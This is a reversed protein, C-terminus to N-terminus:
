ELVARPQGVRSKLGVLVAAAFAAFIVFDAISYLGLARSSSHLAVAIQRAILPGVFFGIYVITQYGGVARGHFQLPTQTLLRNLLLPVVMGQSAGTLVAGAVLAPLWPVQAIILTGVALPLMVVSMKLPYSYNPQMGYTLATAAAAIQNVSMLEGALGSSILGREQLVAGMEFLPPGVVATTILVLAFVFLWTMWPIAAGTDAIEAARVEARVEARPPPVFLLCLLLPLGALLPLFAFRWGMEGLIGSAPLIFIGVLAAGGAQVGLWRKLPAGSFYESLLALAPTMMLGMAIGTVLRSALIWSFSNLWLPALASVVFVSASINLLRRPGFWESLAGAPISIFAVALTPLVAVLTVLQAIHPQDPFAGIIAPFVPVAVYIVVAMMTPVATLLLGQVLGADRDSGEILAAM